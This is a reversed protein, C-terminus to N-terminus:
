ETEAANAIKKLLHQVDNWEADDDIEEIMLKGDNDYFKSIYIIQDEEDGRVEGKSYVLYQRNEDESVLYTVLEVEIQNGDIDVIRIMEKEEM